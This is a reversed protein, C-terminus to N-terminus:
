RFRHDISVLVANTLFAVSLCVPPCGGRKANLKCSVFRYVSANNKKPYQIKLLIKNERAVRIEIIYRRTRFRTWDLDKELRFVGWVSNWGCAMCALYNQQCLLTGMFYKRRGWHLLWEFLPKNVRLMDTLCILDRYRRYWGSNLSLVDTQKRLFTEFQRTDLHDFVRASQHIGTEPWAYTYLM